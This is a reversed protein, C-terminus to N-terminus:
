VRVGVTDAGIDAEYLVDVFDADRIARLWVESDRRWAPPVAARARAQGLHDTLRPAVLAAVTRPVERWRGHKLALTTFIAAAQRRSGARLLQRALYREHLAEQPEVGYAAALAAYREIITSYGARMRSVDMSLSQTGLRYAILPRNVAALPSRQALRIWLDWDESGPLAPDFGGTEQLLSREAIVSSGSPIGNTQLLGSLVQGGAVHHHGIIELCEDVVIMGTCGWRAGTTRLAALQETLKSPAWLDDDDCFAIWRGSAAAIGANRAWSVFRPRAHRVVKVRPDKAVIHELWPGTGDTSGDDVVILEVAVGGQCLISDVAQSVLRRRNHTPVVVTVDIV